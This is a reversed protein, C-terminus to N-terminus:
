DRKTSIKEEISHHIEEMVKKSDDINYSVINMLHTYSDLDIKNFVFGIGNETERCATGSLMVVIPPDSANLHITIEAPEGEALREATALFMGNMSLNEVYGQFERNNTKIFARVEFKVRSFKRTKMPIGRTRISFPRECIFGFRGNETM